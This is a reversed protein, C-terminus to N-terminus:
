ANVRLGDLEKGLYSLRTTMVSWDIEKYKENAKAPDASQKYPIPFPHNQYAKWLDAGRKAWEDAQFVPEPISISRGSIQHGFCLALIFDQIVNQTFEKPSLDSLLVEYETPKATGLPPHHSQIFIETLDTRVVNRDVVTLADPNSIAWNQASKEIKAFRKNHRKTCIIVVFKPNYGHLYEDCAERLAGVEDRVVMDYQGDSVGDRLIFITEPLQESRKAQWMTLIWKLRENLILDDIKERKPVHFCFDGIFAERNATCNASFGVVSPERNFNGLARDQVTIGGTPHAVDMGIILTRAEWLLKAAIQPNVHHNLGGTKMNLKALLNEITSSTATKITRTNIHQTIVQFRTEALKLTRHSDVENSDIYIIMALRREMKEGTKVTNARDQWQKARHFIADGPQDSKGFVNRLNVPDSSLEIKDFIIGKLPAEQTLKQTLEKAMEKTIGKQMEREPCWCISVFGIRSAIAYRNRKSMWSAKKEDVIANQRQYLVTPPKRRFAIVEIPKPNLKLGFSQLIRKPDAALDLANLHKDIDRFRLDPKTAKEPLALAKHKPVRQNECIILHEMAHMVNQAQGKLHQPLTQIVLPWKPYRLPKGREKWSAAMTTATKEIYNEADIFITEDTLALGSCKFTGRDMGQHDIRVRVGQLYENTRKLANRDWFVDQPKMWENIEMVTDIVCKSQYFTGVKADLVLAAVLGCREEGEIFRQGKTIGDRREHGTGPISRREGEKNAFAKGNGFFTYKGNNIGGQSTLLELFQRLPRDDGGRKVNDLADGLTFRAASAMCPQIVIQVDPADDPRLSQLLQRARAPLLEFKVTLISHYPKLAEDLCESAFLIAADDSAYFCHDNIVGYTELAM